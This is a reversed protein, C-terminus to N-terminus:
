FTLDLFSYKETLGREARLRDEVGLLYFIFFESKITEEDIDLLEEIIERETAITKLNRIRRRIKEDKIGKMEMIEELMDKM